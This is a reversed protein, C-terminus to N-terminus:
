QGTQVATIYLQFTQQTAVSSSQPMKLKLWLNRKSNAQGAPPILDMNVGGNYRASNVTGTSSQYYSLVEDQGDTFESTPVQLASATSTFVALLSFQDAAASSGISWNQSNTAVMQWRSAVDGNNQVVIAATSHTVTNLGVTGFDYGLENVSSIIVGYRVIPTVFLSITDTSAARLAAPTQLSLAALAFAVSLFRRSNM